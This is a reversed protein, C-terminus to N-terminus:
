IITKMDSLDASETEKEKNAPKFLRLNAGLVEKEKVQEPIVEATSGTPTPTQENLQNTNLAEKEEPEAFYDESFQQLLDHNGELFHMLINRGRPNKALWFLLNTKEKTKRDIVAKHLDANTICKSFAENNNVLLELIDLGEESQALSHICFAGSETETEVVNTWALLPIEKLYDPKLEFLTKLFAIGDKTSSLIQLATFNFGVKVSLTIPKALDQAPLFQVFSHDQRIKEHLAIRGVFTLIMIYYPTASQAGKVALLRVAEINRSILENILHPYKAAIESIKNLGKQNRGLCSLICNPLISVESLHINQGVLTSASLQKEYESHLFVNLLDSQEYHYAFWYLPSTVAFMKAELTLSQVLSTYPIENPLNPNKQILVRLIHHGLLDSSLFYFASTNADKGATKGRLQILSDISFHESLRENLEFLEKLLQRGDPKTTLWYFASTNVNSLGIDKFEASPIVLRVLDDQKLNKAISKNLGLLNKLVGRGEETSSLWYLSSDGQTYYSEITPDGLDKASIYNALEPNIKLLHNLLYCGDASTSLWYLASADSSSRRTLAHALSEPSICYLIEPKLEFIRKLIFQTSSNLSLWYLASNAVPASSFISNILEEIPLDTILSPNVDLWESLLNVGYVCLWYFPSTNEFIGKSKSIKMFVSAPVDQLMPNQKLLLHLLKMGGFHLDATFHMLPYNSDENYSTTLDAVTFQKALNSNNSLLLILIERGHGEQALTLFITSKTKGYSYEKTLDKASFHSALEPIYNLLKGLLEKQFLNVLLPRGDFDDKLGEAILSTFKPHQQLVSALLRINDENKIFDIFGCSNQSASRKFLYEKVQSDNLLRILTKKSDIKPWRLETTAAKNRNVAQSKAQKKTNLKIERPKVQDKTAEKNNAEASQLKQKEIERAIDENGRDRQKQAEQHWDIQTDQGLNMISASEHNVHAKQLLNGLHAIPKLNQVIILHNKARTFATFIKNFLPGYSANRQGQKARHVPAVFDNEKLKDKLLANIHKFEEKDFLRYAVVTKYELGKIQKPTFVLPTQFLQIAEEKFEKYTVVVLEKQRLTQLSETSSYELWEVFGPEAKADQSSSIVRFEKKDAIGGTFSNKIDIIKNALEVICPHCRYTASLAFHEAKYHGGSFAHLLYDRKSQEDKLSQHTDMCAVIQYEKVLKGLNNLECHSLDQAEDVVIFSYLSNVTTSYFGPDIRQTGELYLLYARSMEWLWQRQETNHILSQREGLKLYEESSYATLIRLERYILSIQQLFNPNVAASDNRKKQKAKYQKFWEQFHAKGVIEKKSFELDCESLLEQYTRFQVSKPPLNQAAPLEQWGAELAKKLPESQTVYLIPGNEYALQNVAQELLSLAVCSKGSGPPGSIVAPLTAGRAVQQEDNFEIYMQNYYAIPAYQLPTNDAIKQESLPVDTTALFDKQEIHNTITEANKELYNKLVAPKLFPCKNYDHNLVVDLLVLFSQGDKNVTTFILRDSKNVRVSYVRYGQLKKLDLDASKYNGQVLKNIIEHYPAFRSADGIIGQWYYVKGM